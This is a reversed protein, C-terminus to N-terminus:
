SAAGSHSHDEFLYSGRRNVASLIARAAAAPADAGFRAIGLLRQPGDPTYLLLKAWVVREADAPESEVQLLSLGFGPPLLQQMAKVTAEGALFLPGQPSTKAAAQGVVTTGNMGLEVEAVVIGNTQNVTADKLVLRTSM